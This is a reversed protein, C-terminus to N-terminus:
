DNDILREVPLDDLILDVELESPHDNHEQVKELTIGQRNARTKDSACVGYVEYPIDWEKLIEGVRRYENFFRVDDIIIRDITTDKFIERISKILARIWIEDDIGRGIETGLLTIMKRYYYIYEGGSLHEVMGSYYSAFEVGYIKIMHLMQHINDSYKRLETFLHNNLMENINKIHIPGAYDRIIGNKRFGLGEIIGKLPDALSIIALRRGHPKHTELYHILQFTKGSGAKGSYAIVKKHGM